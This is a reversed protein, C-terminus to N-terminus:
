QCIMIIVGVSSSVLIYLICNFVLNLCHYCLYLPISLMNRYLRYGPTHVSYFTCLECNFLELSIGGFLTYCYLIYCINASYVFGTFQVM